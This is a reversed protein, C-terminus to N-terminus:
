VGFRALCHQLCWRLVRIYFLHAIRAQFNGYCQEGRSSVMTFLWPTAMCAKDCGPCDCDVCGGDDHLVGDDLGLPIIALAMIVTGICITILFFPQSGKVIQVDRNYVTWGIFGFSLAILVAAITLGFPRVQDLQNKNYFVPEPCVEFKNAQCTKLEPSPGEYIFQPGSEFLHSLLSQKTHAYWALLRVALYGQLYPQQDVAYLVRGDAVYQVVKEGSDFAGILLGPHEDQLLVSGEAFPDSVLLFGIGDWDGEEPIFERVRRQYLALNDHYTQGEPPYIVGEYTINLGSDAIADRLGFCRDDLDNSLHWQICYGREMGAEILKKSAAYASNYHSMTIGHQHAAKLESSVSVFPVELSGCLDLVTDLTGTGFVGDM